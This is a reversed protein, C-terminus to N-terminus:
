QLNTCKSSNEHMDNQKWQQVESFKTYPKYQPMSSLEGYTDGRRSQNISTLYHWFIKLTTAGGKPRSRQQTRIFKDDDDDDPIQIAGIVSFFFM